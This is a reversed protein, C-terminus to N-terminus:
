AVRHRDICPDQPNLISDVGFCLRQFFRSAGMMLEVHDGYGFHLMSHQRGGRICTCTGTDCKSSSNFRWCRFCLKM